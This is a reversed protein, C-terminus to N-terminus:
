AAIKPKESPEFSLWDRCGRLRQAGAGGALPHRSVRLQLQPESSVQCPAKSIQPMGVRIVMEIFGWKDM